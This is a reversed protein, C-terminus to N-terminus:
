RVMGWGVMMFALLKKDGIETPILDLGKTCGKAVLFSAGVGGYKEGSEETVQGYM